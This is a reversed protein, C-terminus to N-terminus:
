VVFRGVAVEPPVVGASGKGVEVCWDGVWRSIRHSCPHCRDQERESMVSMSAWSPLDLYWAYQAVCM